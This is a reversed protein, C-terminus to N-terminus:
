KGRHMGQAPMSCDFSLELHLWPFNCSLIRLRLILVPVHPHPHPVPFRFRPDSHLHQEQISLVASSAPAWAQVKGWHANLSSHVCECLAQMQRGAWPGVVFSGIHRCGHGPVVVRGVVFDAVVGSMQVYIIRVRLWTYAGHALGEPINACCSFLGSFMTKITQWTANQWWVHTHYEFTAWLRTREISADPEFSWNSM